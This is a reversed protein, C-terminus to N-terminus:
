DKASIYNITTQSRTAFVQHVNLAHCVIRSILLITVQYDTSEWTTASRLM